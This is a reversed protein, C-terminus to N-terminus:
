QLARVHVHSTILTVIAEFINIPFPHKEVTGRWPLAGTAMVLGTGSRFM